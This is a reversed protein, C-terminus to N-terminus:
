TSAAPLPEPHVPDPPDSARRLSALQAAVGSLAEAELRGASDAVSLAAAAGDEAARRLRALALEDLGDRQGNFYARTLEAQARVTDTLIAVVSRM